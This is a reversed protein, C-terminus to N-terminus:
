PRKCALVSVALRSLQVKIGGRVFKIALLASSAKKSRAELRLEGKRIRLDVGLSQLDISMTLRTLGIAFVIRSSSEPKTAEEEM